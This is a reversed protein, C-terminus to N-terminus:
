NTSPSHKHPGASHFLQSTSDPIFRFLIMVISNFIQSVILLYFYYYKGSSAISTYQPHHNIIPSITTMQQQPQQILTYGQNPQHHNQTESKCYDFPMTM